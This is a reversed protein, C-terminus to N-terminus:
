QQGWRVSGQGKRPLLGLVTSSGPQGAKRGGLSLPQVQMGQPHHLSIMWLFNFFYFDKPEARRGLSAEPSGRGQEPLGPSAWAFLRQFKFDRSSSSSGGSGYPVCPQPTYKQKWEGSKRIIHMKPNNGPSTM